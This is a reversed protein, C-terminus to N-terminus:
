WSFDYNSGPLCRIVVLGSSQCIEPNRAVQSVFSGRNSAFRKQGENGNQVTQDLLPFRPVPFPFRTEPAAFAAHDQQM